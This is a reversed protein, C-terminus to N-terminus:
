AGEQIGSGFTLQRQQGGMPSVTAIHVGVDDVFDFAIRRGNPSWDSFFSPV